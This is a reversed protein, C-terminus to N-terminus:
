AHLVISVLHNPETVVNVLLTPETVKIEVKVEPTGPTVWVNVIVMASVVIVRTVVVVKVGVGSAITEGTMVDPVIGSHWVGHSIANITSSTKKPM